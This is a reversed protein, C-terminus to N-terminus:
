WPSGVLTFAAWYYPHSFVREKVQTISPPLVIPNATGHLQGNRINVKGQLMAIQAERLAVAKIPAQRLGRYFESMLALSGEDSIHWFSALATKAGSQVALGAFGFEANMNGVSTQCASLTLLEVPNPRRLPLQRLSPLHLRQNNGFEIYALQEAPFHAHTALHILLYGGGLREQILRQVTFDQNLFYKGGREETILQLEIPVAPLPMKDSFKDAGMALVKVDKINRYTTDILNVSPILSMSYQEILFQRGDHLAAVPVLRLGDDMAFLLTDVGARELEDKIPAIFWQYLKQASQLYANRQRTDKVLKIFEQVVPMLNARRAEPLGRIIVHSSDQKQALFNGAILQGKEGLGLSAMKTEHNPLIAVITLQREDLMLYIIAPKTGTERALRDLIARTEEITSIENIPSVGLEQNFQNTFLKDIIIASSVNGISLSQTIDSRIVLNELNVNPVDGITPNSFNKTLLISDANKGKNQNRDPANASVSLNVSNNTQPSSPPTITALNMQSEFAGIDVTTFAIRSFGSGRQDETFGSPILGNNGKNFAPSGMLLAHTKTVGGNNALPGLLPDVGVITGNVGNIFTTTFGSNNGILNYGDNVYGIGLTGSGLDSSINSQNKAIISNGISITGGSRFIGGGNMAENFAITSNRIVGGNGAFIGGGDKAINGSVTSNELTISGFYAVIGGGSYLSTNNSLTSNKVIVNGNAQIGGGDFDATNNAVTSDNIIVSGPIFSFSIGGGEDKAKNNLIRSKNLIVAKGISRIGGGEHGVKNNSITVDNLQITSGSGAWIGGGSNSAINDTIISGNIVLNGGGDVLIAGGNKVTFGNRITLDNFEIDGGVVKFVRSAGKGDIITQNAGNGTIVLGFPDTVVLEGALLHIPIGNTAPAFKIEDLGTTGPGYGDVVTNTNVAEIAERLALHGDGVLTALTGDLSHTVTLVSLQIDVDKVALPNFVIQDGGMGTSYEFQWNGGYKEHGTIDRSANVNSNTLRSIETVLNQGSQTAALYCAYLFIDRNGILGQGWQAIQSEYDRLTDMTIFDRGFWIQGANGEGIIDIREVAGRKEIVQNVKEVGSDGRGILYVDRGPALANVLQEYNKVRDLFVYGEADKGPSTRIHILGDTGVNTLNARDLIVREGSISLLSDPNKVQSATSVTGSVYATGTLLQPIDTPLVPRLNQIAINQNVAVPLDLSLINGSQLVNVYKGDATATIVITGNPTQITGTNIVQNGALVITQGPNVNLNAQNVIVGAPTGPNLNQNLSSFLYGNPEATLTALEAATTNMGFYGNGIKIANATTAHFAAPVNLSANSGFIIGAPNMLFLNSQGGTVKILGNIFSTEGGTVRALINRISPNSLFNAIQGQNLGFKAFSHFLNAGAQTGGYIDFQQGNVTVQTGLGNPVVQARVPITSALYLLLALVANLHRM